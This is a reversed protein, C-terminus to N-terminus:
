LVGQVIPVAGGSDVLEIEVDYTRQLIERDVVEVPAGAAVVRGERMLILHDAFRAALNVDHSVCLVCMPWEHAVRQMMRHIMLQNRIDLHSTPEDLLMVEPQQALARAIMVRQAEGGSLEPLIRDAFAEVQTMKMAERSVALDDDVTMGMLGTHAYRGMLVIETVTFAFTMAPLQPVYALVHALERAPYEGVAKGKLEIRGTSPVLQNMLCRLLTTKGCGNPGLICTLRGSEAALGTGRLVPTDPRYGFALDSASLIPEARSVPDTV